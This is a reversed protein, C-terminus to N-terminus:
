PQPALGDLRDQAKRAAESQPYKEMVHRYHKAAEGPNGSKERCYGLWFVSESAHRPENAAEYGAVLQELLKAADAYKSDFIMEIAAEMTPDSAIAAQTSPQTDVEHALPMPSYGSSCSALMMAGAALLMAIAFGCVSLIKKSRFNHFM